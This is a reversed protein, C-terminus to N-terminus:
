VNSIVQPESNTSALDSTEEKKTLKDFEIGLAKVAFIWAIVVILLIVGVIPTSLSVSGYVILLLQHILSGGTKGLRSGIGDIAAKGKLKSEKNLCVM